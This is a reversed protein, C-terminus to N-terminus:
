VVTQMKSHRHVAQRGIRDKDFVFVRGTNKLIALRAETLDGRGLNSSPDGAGSALIRDV